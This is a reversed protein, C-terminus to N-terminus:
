LKLLDLDELIGFLAAGTLCAKDLYQLAFSLFMIPMLVLDIRRLCERDHQPTVSHQFYNDVLQTAIDGSHIPQKEDNTNEVHMGVGIDHSETKTIM